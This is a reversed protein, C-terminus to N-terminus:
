VRQQMPGKSCKGIGQCLRGLEGSNTVGGIGVFKSPEALADSFTRFAWHLLAHLAFIGEFEDLECVNRLVAPMLYTIGHDYALDFRVLFVGVAGADGDSATM